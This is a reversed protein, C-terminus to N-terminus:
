MKDSLALAFLIYAIISAIAARTFAILLSRGKSEEPVASNNWLKDERLYSRITLAVTLAVGFPYYWVSAPRGGNVWVIFAFYAVNLAFTLLARQKPSMSKASPPVRTLPAAEEM